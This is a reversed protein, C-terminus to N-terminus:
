HDIELISDLLLRQAPLFLFLPFSPPLPSPRKSRLFARTSNRTRSSSLPPTTNKRTRARVPAVGLGRDFALYLPPVRVSSITQLRPRTQGVGGVKDGVRSLKKSTPLFRQADKDGRGRKVSSSLLPSIDRSLPSPRAYVAAAAKGGSTM